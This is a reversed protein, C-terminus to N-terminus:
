TNLFNMMSDRVPSRWKVYGAPVLREVPIVPDVIWRAMTGRMSQGVPTLLAAEVAAIKAPLSAGQPLFDCLRARLRELPLQWPTGESISDALM